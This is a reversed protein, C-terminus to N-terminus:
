SSSLPEVPLLRRDFALGCLRDKRETKRNLTAESVDLESKCVKETTDATALLQELLFYGPEVLSISEGV